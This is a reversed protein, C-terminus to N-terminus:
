RAKNDNNFLEILRGGIEENVAQHKHERSLSDDV